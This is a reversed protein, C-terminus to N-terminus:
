VLKFAVFLYNGVLIVFKNLEPCLVMTAVVLFLGNIELLAIGYFVYKADVKEMQSKAVGGL